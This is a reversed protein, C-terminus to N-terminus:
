RWKTAAAAGMNFFNRQTRVENLGTTIGSNHTPTKPRVAFNQLFQSITLEREQSVHSLIDNAMTRFLNFYTKVSIEAQKREQELQLLQVDPLAPRAAPAPLIRFPAIQSFSQKGPLNHVVDKALSEVKSCM